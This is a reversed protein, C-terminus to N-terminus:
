ILMVKAGICLALNEITNCQNLTIKQASVSTNVLKIAVIPQLLDRLWNTNYKGVAVRTSYLRIANNFGVVKNIFLGQKCRTLFLKQTLDSIFDNYLKTLATRFISSEANNGSQWM